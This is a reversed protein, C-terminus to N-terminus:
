PVKTQLCKFFRDMMASAAAGVLRQGVQAVLGGVTMTGDVNVTTGPEVPTLTIHAEGRAFGPRGSGDVILRYSSPPQQDALTVTGTFSGTITAIGATIIVRYSNDGAPEFTQCGPLCSAIITPDMLRIWVEEPPADFTYQAKLEV